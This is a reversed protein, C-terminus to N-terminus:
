AAGDLLRRAADIALLYGAWGFGSIMGACVPATISTRRFEERASINSLHVEIVPPTIAAIADRIAISSHTFGGPNIIVADSGGNAQHLEDIIVGEHNSQRCRVDFGRGAGHGTIQRDLEALTTRGYIDPERIGLLNLNPGHIVLLRDTM